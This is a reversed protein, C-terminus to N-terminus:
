NHEETQTPIKWILIKKQINQTLIEIGKEEMRTLHIM